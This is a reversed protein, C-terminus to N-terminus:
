NMAVGYSTAMTDATEHASEIFDYSNPHFYTTHYGGCIGLHVIARCESKAFRENEFRGNVISTDKGTAPRSPPLRGRGM